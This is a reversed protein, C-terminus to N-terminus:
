LYFGYALIIVSLIVMLPGPIISFWGWDDNLASYLETGGVVGILLLFFGAVIMLAKVRITGTTKAALVLYFGIMFAIYFLMIVASFLLFGIVIVSVIVSPPSSLDGPIFYIGLMGILAICGMLTIKMSFGSKQKVYREWAFIWSLLAWLIITITLYIHPDIASGFLQAM